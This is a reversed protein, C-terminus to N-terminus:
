EATTYLGSLHPNHEAPECMWSPPLQDEAYGLRNCGGVEHGRQTRTGAHTGALATARCYDVRYGDQV